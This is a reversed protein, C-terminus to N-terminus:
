RRKARGRRARPRLRAFALEEHREATDRRGSRGIAVFSLSSVGTARQEAVHRALAARVEAAMPRKNRHALDRLESELEEDIFVTTRKM